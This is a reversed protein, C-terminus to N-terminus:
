DNFIYVLVFKNLKFYHSKVVIDSKTNKVVIVGQHELKFPQLHIQTSLLNDESFYKFLAEKACWAILLHSLTPMEEDQNIFKHAIRGVRDSEYEVDVAVIRTKSLMLAVLGKTHSVSINYGKVLPKGSSHHTIVLDQNGTIEYLLARTALKELRRQKSGVSSLEEKLKLLFPYTSFFYSEDEDLTWLALYVDGNLSQNRLLAM